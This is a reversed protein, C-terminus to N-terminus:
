PNEGELEQWHMNCLEGITAVETCTDGGEYQYTCLPPLFVGCNPCNNMEDPTVDEGCNNCFQQM